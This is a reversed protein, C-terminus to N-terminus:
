AKKLYEWRAETTEKLLLGVKKRENDSLFNYLSQDTVLRVLEFFKDELQKIYNLENM